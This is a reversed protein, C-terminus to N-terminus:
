IDYFYQKIIYNINDETINDMFIETALHDTFVCDIVGNEYIEFELRNNEYLLELQISDRSTATTKIQLDFVVTINEIIKEIKSYNSEIIEPVVLKSSNIKNSIETIKKM